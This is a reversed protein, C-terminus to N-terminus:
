MPEEALIDERKIFLYDEYSFGAYQKYIYRKGVEVGECQEGASIVTGRWNYDKASDPIIILNNDSTAQLEPKLIVWDRIAKM